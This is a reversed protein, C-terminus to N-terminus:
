LQSNTLIWTNLPPCGRGPLETEVEHVSDFGLISMGSSCLELHGGNFQGGGWWHRSRGNRRHCGAGLLSRSARKRLAKWSPSHAPTLNPSIPGGKPFWSSGEYSLQYFFDAQLASSGPEIEPDPLDGPSPFPLGSWYEQRPFGMSLPARCAVTWPTALTPCSKPFCFQFLSPFTWAQLVQGLHLQSPEPLVPRPPFTLPLPSVLPFPLTSRPLHYVSSGAKSDVPKGAKRTISTASTSM